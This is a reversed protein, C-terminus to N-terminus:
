DAAASFLQDDAFRRLAAAFAGLDIKLQNYNENPVLKEEDMYLRRSIEIQLSHVGRVPDGYRRVIEVGKYPDNLRVAYGLHEFFGHAFATFEKHCTTGDRDGLVIDARGQFPPGSVIGSPMSHCNVHWVAGFRQWLADLSARLAAHYPVYYTEIRSQIERVSLRRAYVPMGPRCIRRVLGMGVRGKESQRLAGPWSSALLQPDIDDVARNVDIYSRPFKAAILTGGSRAVHAYLDDVFADEAQRLIHTPCAYMFDAPYINGSHPSDFLLPSAEGLPSRRYLIDTAPQGM